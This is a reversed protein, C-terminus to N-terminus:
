KKSKVRPPESFAYTGDEKQEVLLPEQKGRLLKMLTTELASASFSCRPLGNDMGPTLGLAKAVVAADEGYAGYGATTRFLLLKGPHESKLRAHLAILPNPTAAKRARAREAAEEIAKRRAQEQEPTEQEPVAIRMSQVAEEVEAEEEPTPEDAPTPDAERGGIGFDIGGFTPNEELSREGMENPPSYKLKLDRAEVSGKELYAAWAKALVALKEDRSMALKVEAGDKDKTTPTLAKRVAKCEEGGENAVHTWFDRAKNWHALSMHEESSGHERVAVNYKIQDTKSAAMLYLVAASYGPTFCKSIVGNKNQEYIHRVADYVRGHKDLFSVMESNTRLKTFANADQGVRHWLMRVTHDIIKCMAHTDKKSKSKFHPNAAEMTFVVDALGRPKVNDLTRIVEAEESAGFAVLSEISAVGEPWLAPREGDPQIWHSKNRGELELQALILAILRHQGSLVDGTKGIIITEMNFKWHRNLIDQVRPKCWPEDFPRNHANNTCRVKVSKNDRKIALLFEEGFPEEETEEKWGLWGKALEATIAGEPARPLDERLPTETHVYALLYSEPYIVERPAPEFVKLKGNKKGEVKPM